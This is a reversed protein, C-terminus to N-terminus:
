IFPAAVAEAAFTAQVAPRALVRAAHAAVAPFDRAPRPLDAGWRVLM